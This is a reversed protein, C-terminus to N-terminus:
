YQIVKQSIYRMIRPVASYRATANTFNTGDTLLAIGPYGTGNYGGFIFAIGSTGLSTVSHGELNMLESINLGQMEFTSTSRAYMKLVATTINFGKGAVLLINSDNLVAIAQSYRPVNMMPGSNSGNISVFEARQLALEAAGIGGM